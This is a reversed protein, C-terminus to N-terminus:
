AAVKSKKSTLQIRQKEEAQSTKVKDAVYAILDKRLQVADTQLIYADKLSDEWEGFYVKCMKDTIPIIASAEVDAAKRHPFPEVDFLKLYKAQQQPNNQYLCKIYKELQEDLMCDPSGGSIMLQYQAFIEEPTELIYDRGYSINAGKWSSTFYYEGLFDAIMSETREGWDATCNMKAYKPQLNVLVETATETTDQTGNFGKVQTNNIGWYTYSMLNELNTLDTIQMEWSKIDPTVYGYIDNFKFHPLKEYIDLPFKAVDGVKTELRYGTGSSQGPLTCDPCAKGSKNGTGECTKCKLVPEVAKAFGHYLQQLDKISRNRLFCDALEVVNDIPSAFTDPNDFQILDSIIFGPFKGWMVKIENDFGDVMPAATITEGDRKYICDLADDVFRYYVPTTAPQIPTALTTNGSDQNDTKIGYTAYDKPLIKFCCYEVKRGNTKYDWIDNTSKYTPYAKPDDKESTPDSEIFILGRPDARYAPLAFNQMWKHLSMGYRVDAFTKNVKQEQEEPLNYFASGGRATFVQEEDNLLRKFVDKNSVAYKKRVPYVAKNEHYELHKIADDMGVGHLHLMLKQRYANAAAVIAKNPPALIIKKKQEETLTMQYPILNHTVYLVM